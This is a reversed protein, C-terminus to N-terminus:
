IRRKSDIIDDHSLYGTKLAILGKTSEVDEFVLLLTVEVDYPFTQTQEWTRTWTRTTDMDTDIDTDILM